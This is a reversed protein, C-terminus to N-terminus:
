LRPPKKDVWLLRARSDRAIVLWADMRALAARREGHFTQSLFKRYDAGRTM